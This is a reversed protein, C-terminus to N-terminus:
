AAADSDASVREFLVDYAVDLRTLCSDIVKAGPRVRGARLNSLTAHSINLQRAREADTTWGREATLRDFEALRLRM